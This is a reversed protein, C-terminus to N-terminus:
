AQRCRAEAMALVTLGIEDVASERRLALATGLLDSLRLQRDAEMAAALKTPRVAVAWGLGALAAAGLTAAVFEGTGQGRWILIPMLILAVACGGLLCIGIRELGRLLVMRLHVARLFREFQYENVM